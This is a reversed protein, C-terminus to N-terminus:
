VKVARLSDDVFRIPSQALYDELAAAVREPPLMGIRVITSALQKPDEQQWALLQALQAESLWGKQCAIEGFRRTSGQQERLVAEVQEHTLLRHRVALEGLRIPSPPCDLLVRSAAAIDLLQAAVLWRSFRKQSVQGILRREDEGILSRVTVRNRGANKSEYLCADAASVLEKHTLQPVRGPIVIAAGLSVTVNMSVGEFDIPKAAVQERIRQALKELGKETPRSVLIVFEEGGYRALTDSARVSDRFREAIRRLVEDGAQHGYTDNLRKFHDVDAFIVGVPSATRSCAAFEKELTADFFHRNYLGTLKDHLAQKQLEINKSELARVEAEATQQRVTAQTSALHERMALQALQENAEIMLDAPSGIQTMDVHFLDGAQKFREDVKLLFEDLDQSSMGCWTRALWRLRELSEGKLPSCVYDGVTAAAAMAANLFSGPEDRVTEFEALPAHHLRAAEVMVAPLKWNTMLKAGIDVHSFGFAEMECEVLTAPGSAAAELVPLYQRPITKLMALRGLDLLLGSLFFEGSLAMNQRQALQEAACAQVISQRWYSLYHQAVPGRSMADDSLSFSLALSTAVTTGLLPVARDLTRVECNLGFFSSNAAKLIKAAIAPDTNIVEIVQRIERDPNKTLELLKVAVVPLTPLQSSTWIRKPDLM